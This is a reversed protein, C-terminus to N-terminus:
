RFLSFAPPRVLPRGELPSTGDPDDSVAPTDLSGNMLQVPEPNGFIQSAFAPPPSPPLLPPARCEPPM